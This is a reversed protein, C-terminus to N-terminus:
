VLARLARDIVEMAVVDDLNYRLIKKLLVRDRKDLWEGYWAESNLGGADSADWHFGFLPAVQKISYSTAPLAFHESM